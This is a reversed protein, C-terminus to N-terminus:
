VIQFLSTGAGAGAPTLVFEIGAAFFAEHGRAIAEGFEELRTGELFGAHVGVVIAV